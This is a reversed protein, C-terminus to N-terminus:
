IASMLIVLKVLLEPATLYGAAQSAALRCESQGWPAAGLSSLAHPVSSTILVDSASGAFPRHEEALTQTVDLSTSHRKAGFTSWVGGNQSVNARDAAFAFWVDCLRQIDFTLRISITSM